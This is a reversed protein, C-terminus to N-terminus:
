GLVQYAFRLMLEQHDISQEQARSGHGADFWEIEISKGLSKMKDEYARMQRAPCRTDNSGQIVLVPAKVAEAYTIPSSARTAEPTEQPTGGFLARQYGRLTEAQDEYMLGWDAIAIGAMGGAWLDPRKGLSQLTLYGGYSWGTVLVSDPIAINNEVLWTYAGAMDEVEHHGLNGWIAKEFDKGFTTSGHYNITFYAFGHDVWTQSNPAYFESMVATPGGHTELITPFPGAGEPTVLWAQITAGNESTFSVSKWKQGAPAAGAALVVRTQQGITSDLAILQSPNASDQWTAYIEGSPVFYANGNYGGLVGAPHQLKTVARTEVDYLYLQYEAQYLQGLLIHRADPSWCWPTLQGPITNLALDYREGTRANWILPREYGSKSTTALLRFDGPLPSFPGFNHSTNEGDWLEAIVEGTATDIAILSTDLTGTKESTDVVAVEGGYSLLPGFTLQRFQAIRRSAAGEPMVYIEFGNPGAALFGTVAGSECQEIFFSAYPPMDPTVDEAEGGAFPVRVYHGIENGQQDRHYYVYQGDASIMGSVVGAPQSTLQRLQGSVTEWGYLQYIGDKNTCVLGREPNQDAIKTWAISAARFRAKWAASQTTDLAKFDM